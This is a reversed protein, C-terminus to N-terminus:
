MQEILAMIPAFLALFLYAIFGGISLLLLPEVWKIRRITEDITETELWVGYQVLQEALQGNREAYYIVPFLEKTFLSEDQIAEGLSLGRLLKRELRRLVDRLIRSSTQRELHRVGEYLPINAQLLFGLEISFRITYTVNLWTRLVPVRLALPLLSLRVRAPRLLIVVVGSMLLIIIFTILGFRQVWEFVSMIILTSRPLAVDFAVFMHQFQPLVLYIVLYVIIGLVLLLVVPYSLVKRWEQRLQLRKTKWAGAQKLADALRGHVDAQALMATVQPAFGAQEFARSIPEGKQLNDSIHSLWYRERKSASATLIELVQILAYGQTLMSSMRRLWSVKEMQSLPRPKRM